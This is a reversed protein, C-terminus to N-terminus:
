SALAFFRGYQKGRGGDREATGGNKEGRLGVKPNCIVNVYSVM